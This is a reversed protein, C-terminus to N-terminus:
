KNDNNYELLSRLLTSTAAKTEPQALRNIERFAQVNKAVGNIDPNALYKAIATNNRNVISENIPNLIEGIIGTPNKFIKIWMNAQDRLNQKESTQSGRMLKNFNRNFRIEDKAENIIKDGRQKGLAARIKEQANRSLLAKFGLAENERAGIKTLLDDRVGIALADKERASMDRIARKFDDISQKNDFIAQGMEAADKFKYSDSYIQRATKYAPVIEDMKDLLAVKQGVLRAAKETEGTRRAVRIADDINKKVNDLVDFSTDPANLVDEPLTLDKRVKSIENQIFRNKNVYEGFPSININDELSPSIGMDNRLDGNISLNDIPNKLKGAVQNTKAPYKTYLEGNRLVVNDFYKRGNSNDRIARMLNEDGAKNFRIDPNAVTEKLTQIFPARHSIQGKEDVVMHRAGSNIKNPNGKAIDLGAQSAQDVVMQLYEKDTMGTVPDIPQYREPKIKDLNNKIEIRELDKGKLSNYYPEAERAALQEVEEVTAGRTRTGLTNDIFDRMRKPQEEAVSVMRDELIKRAQPTQQRAQQATQIIADDGVEVMSRGTRQAEALTDDLVNDGVAKRLAKIAKIDKASIAKPNILQYAKGLVGGGAVGGFLDTAFRELPNRPDLTGTLIASGTTGALTPTMGPNLVSQAIKSATTTGSGLMGADALGAGTAALVAGDFGYQGGLEAIREGVTEPKFPKTDIGAARAIYGAPNLMSNSIGQMAAVAMRGVPNKDLWPRNKEQRKAYAENNAKIKALAEPDFKNDYKEWPKM